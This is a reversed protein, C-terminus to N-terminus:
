KWTKIIHKFYRNRDVIKKPTNSKIFYSKIFDPNGKKTAARLKALIWVAVIVIIFLAIIMIFPNVGKFLLILIIIAGSLAIITFQVPSLGFFRIPKNVKLLVSLTKM